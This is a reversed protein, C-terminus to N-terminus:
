VCGTGLLSQTLSLGVYVMRGRAPSFHLEGRPKSCDQGQATTIPPAM